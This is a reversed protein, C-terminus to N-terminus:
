LENSTHSKCSLVGTRIPTELAEFFYLTAWYQALLSISLTVAGKRTLLGLAMLGVEVLLVMCLSMRVVTKFMTKLIDTTAGQVIMTMMRPMEEFLHKQQEADRASDQDKHESGRNHLAARELCDCSLASSKLTALKLEEVLIM